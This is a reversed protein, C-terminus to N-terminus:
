AASEHQAQLTRRAKVKEFVKILQALHRDFSQLHGLIKAQASMSRRVSGDVLVGLADAIARTDDPGPVVFGELGQSIVEGAGNCQTTIVPLGCALAEFVVLSCPDYYSPMAFLDSGWFCPRIDSRFGLFHVRRDIGLKRARRQHSEPRGKGCVILRLSQNEWNRESALRFADLLRDLGKLRYNHAVFLVLVEDDSAGIETRFRERTLEPDAVKLRETDIANPIVEIRDRPVGYFSELHGRVFQSVAVIQRNAEPDYQRRELELYFSRNRGRGKLFRYLDRRWGQPFRQANHELSAPHIGGQPILVDHDWTNIFGVSCDFQSQSLAESSKQAFEVLQARKTRGRTKVRVPVVGHPLAAQDWEEAFLDVRHGLRVLGRCLDGVYTEAGGLSPVVRRYNIALHM